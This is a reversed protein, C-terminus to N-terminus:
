LMKLFEREGIIPVGLKKAKNYKSGPQAGTVVLDTEKSVSSSVQGGLQRIKDKAEDRTLTELEGTLVFTRGVLKQSIKPAPNKIKVGLKILGNVIKLNKKHSFWERISKAVKPGVDEVQQLEELDARALEAMSSFHNALVVGTEEGVQRIGLAYIFKALEIVKSNEISNILNAASKEAFRELPRLDEEKLRFIDTVNKLLDAQQLQELIKPGLGDIDFAKKSVFHALGEQQQAYCNKNACYYAVEGPKRIVKSGCIPCHSPMKFKKEQGTRLKPLVEVIDPIVDGAKQLVVTDGIRVGLREIEDQNHLTARKVVSGALRVPTLHAVPTLTGTRGVQVEINEVSTTVQQAQFKYAVAWRVTKATRGLKKQYDIGNVKIVIGDIEFPLSNRKKQLDNFIKETAGINKVKQWDVNVKFGQRKLEELVGAQTKFNKPGDYSYMFSDLDGEAAVKPDLQRVTGAVANRSNDFLPKGKKKQKRNLKEFSSKSMFVEGNVELDVRDKIKLPVSGITRITHTVVEGVVGDGRTVAKDLFGNKYIYSMNLGDIKLECVYELDQDIPLNLFRKIRQDFELVEAFSFVDDISYKPLKHKHKEFKGLAKGGIRQTPSDVTIFEPYEQELKELENKLSDRVADTVIPRDLVYYAYDIEQLQDKLKSIRKQAENKNM